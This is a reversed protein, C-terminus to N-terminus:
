SLAMALTLVCDVAAPLESRLKGKCVMRIRDDYVASGPHGHVLPLLAEDVGSRNLLARAADEDPCRVALLHDLVPNRTEMRVGRARGAHVISLHRPLGEVWCTLSTSGGRYVVDLPFGDLVGHLEGIVASHLTMRAALENWHRNELAILSPLVPNVADYVERTRSLEFFEVECALVTEQVALTNLVAGHPLADVVMTRGEGTTLEDSLDNELVHRLQLTWGSPRAQIQAWWGPGQGRAGRVQEVVYTLARTDCLERLAADAEESRKLMRGAGIWKM